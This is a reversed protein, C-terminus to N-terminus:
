SNLIGDQMLNTRCISYKSILNRGDGNSKPPDNMGNSSLYVIIKSLKHKILGDFMGGGISYLQGNCEWRDDTPDDQTLM